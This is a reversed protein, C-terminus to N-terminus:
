LTALVDGPIAYGMRGLFGTIGGVLGAGARCRRTEVVQPVKQSPKTHHRAVFGTLKEAPCVLIDGEPGPNDFAGNSILESSVAFSPDFGAKKIPTGEEDRTRTRM